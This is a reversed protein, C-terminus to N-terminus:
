EEKTDEGALKLIDEIEDETVGMREAVEEVSVKRGYEEKMDKIVEDLEKVREVMKRDQRKTENQAESMALMGARVEELVDAEEKAHGPNAGLALMLSMNGEQIMDGIFVDPSHLKVAEEVVMRLYGAMRVDDATGKEMQEIESMYTEVYAREEEGLPHIDEKTNEEKVTGKARVYGAVAVKQSMLYECVLNVQEQSLHDEEFYKEVEELSIHHEQSKAFGLVGDLKEKFQLRDSM